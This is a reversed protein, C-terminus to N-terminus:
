KVAVKIGFYCDILITVFCLIILPMIPMFFSACFTALGLWVKNALQNSTIANIVNKIQKILTFNNV